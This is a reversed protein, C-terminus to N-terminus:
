AFHSLVCRVSWRGSMVPFFHAVLRQSSVRWFKRGIKKGGRVSGLGFHFSITGSVFGSRFLPVSVFLFLFCISGVGFRFTVSRFTVSRFAVSRFTVSVLVSDSRFRFPGLGFRVFVLVSDFRLRCSSFRYLVLVM